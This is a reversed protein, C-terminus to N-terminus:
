GGVDGEGEGRVRVRRWMGGHQIGEEWWRGMGEDGVFGVGEWWKQVNTQAHALVLGRWEGKGEGDEGNGSTLEWAHGGAWRMAEEVVRKAIGMGRYPGLTAMRGIKIYPERGDWYETAKMVPELARGQEDREVGGEEDKEVGVPPHPPSCPVLRLTCAAVGEEGEEKEEEGHATCFAVFHWSRGDDLDIEAALSCHQETIFVPLRISLASLFLPPVDPHTPIKSTSSPSTTADPNSTSPPSPSTLLATLTSPPISLISPGPPPLIKIKIPSPSPM